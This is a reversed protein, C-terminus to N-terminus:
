TRRAACGLGNEIPEHSQHEHNTRGGPALGRGGKQIKRARGVHWRACFRCEYVRTGEVPDLMGRRALSRLQAEASGRSRHPRKRWCPRALMTLDTDLEGIRVHGTANFYSYM